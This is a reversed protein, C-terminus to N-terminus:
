KVSNAGLNQDSKAAGISCIWLSLGALAPNLPNQSQPAPLSASFIPHSFTFNNKRLGKSQLQLM